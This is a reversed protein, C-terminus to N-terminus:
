AIQHPWIGSTQSPLWMVRLTYDQTIHSPNWSMAYPKVCGDIMQNEKLIVHYMTVSPMYHM